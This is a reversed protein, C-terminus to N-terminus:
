GAMVPHLPQSVTGLTGGAGSANGSQDLVVEYGTQWRGAINRGATTTSNAFVAVVVGGGQDVYDAMVDGWAVNSLPTTNTYALLADYQGLQQITPTSTSCNVIDVASFLGTAMLATQPTTWQCATNSGSAAGCLAIKIQGQAAAVVAFVIPALFRVATLSPM